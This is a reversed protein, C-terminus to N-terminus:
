KLIIGRAGKKPQAKVASEDRKWVGTKGPKEEGPSKELGKFPWM